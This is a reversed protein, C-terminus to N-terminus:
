MGAGAGAGARAGAGSHHTLKAQDLFIHIQTGHTLQAIHAM